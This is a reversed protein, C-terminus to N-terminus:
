NGNIEGNIIIDVRPNLKNVEGYKYRIEKIFNHNDDPLHGSEVLADCFFKDIICCVNSVDSRNNIRPYWIYEITNIYVFEPLSELQPLILEKYRVKIQNM